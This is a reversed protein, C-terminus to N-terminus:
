FGCLNVSHWSFLGHTKYTLSENKKGKGPCSWKVQSFYFSDCLQSNFFVLPLLAPCVSGAQSSDHLFCSDFLCYCLVVPAILVLKKKRSAPFLLILDNLPLEIFYQLQFLFFSDIFDWSSNMIYSLISDVLKRRSQVKWSTPYSTLVCSTRQREKRNNFIYKKEWIYGSQTKGWVAVVLEKGGGRGDPDVEKIDRM